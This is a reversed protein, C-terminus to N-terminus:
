NIMLINKNDFKGTLIEIDMLTLLIIGISTFSFYYIVSQLGIVLLALPITIIWALDLLDPRGIFLSRVIQNLFDFPIISSVISCIVSAIAVKSFWKSYNILKEPHYHFNMNKKDQSISVGQYKGINEVIKVLVELAM